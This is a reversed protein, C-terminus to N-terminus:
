RVPRAVPACCNAPCQQPWPGLASLSERAQSATGDVSERVLDVILGVFRPDTGPTAVRAFGLGLEDARSRAVVDLDWVVEIHDSVFGIPVVVAAPVGEAHLEDLHDGIDPGLWPQSPPGSRSQFVLDWQLDRGTRDAAAHAVLEAVARHQSVYAGQEFAGRPGSAKATAVPLSHTTFALRTGLPMSELAKVVGDVFPDVFGSHDFALPLKDIQPVGADRSGSGDAYADAGCATAIAERYRRCGPGSSFMSTAFAVARTIGDARMADVADPVFPPAYLNGWYVPMELGADVLAPQLAAILARNQANIPSVGDFHAYHAGVEALREDPIGRGSTVRQLFPVVENPGEPGGFSVLLFAQPAADNTV